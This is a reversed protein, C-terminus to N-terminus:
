NNSTGNSLLLQYQLEHAVDFFGPFFSDTLSGNKHIKINKVKGLNEKSGFNILSVFETENVIQQATCVQLKRIIYESHTELVVHWDSQLSFNYLMDALIVQFDPHLNTEPEELVLYKRYNLPIAEKYKFIEYIREPITMEGRDVRLDKYGQSLFFILTLIKFVGTGHETLYRDNLKVEYHSCLKNLPEITLKAQEGFFSEIWTKRFHEIEAYENTHRLSHSKDILQGFLDSDSSFVRKPSGFDNLRLINIPQIKNPTDTQHWFHNRKSEYVPAFFLKLLSNLKSKKDFANDSLNGLFDMFGEQFFWQEFEDKSLFTRDTHPLHGEYTKSEFGYSKLYTVIDERDLNKLIEFFLKMNVTVSIATEETADDAFNEFFELVLDLNQDVYKIKNKINIVEEIPRDDPLNIGEISIERFLGSFTRYFFSIPKIPYTAHFEFSGLDFKEEKWISESTMISLGKLLSSKGSSNGGILVTLPAINFYTKEEFLSFNECIIDM